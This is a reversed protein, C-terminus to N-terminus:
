PPKKSSPLPITEIGWLYDIFLLIKYFFLNNQYTEIGWLYDIFM